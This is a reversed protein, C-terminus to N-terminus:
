AEPKKEEAKDGAVIKYPEVRIAGDGADVIIFGLFYQRDTGLWEGTVADQAMIPILVVRLGDMEKSACAMQVPPDVSVVGQFLYTGEHEGMYGFACVCLVSSGPRDRFKYIMGQGPQMISGQEPQDPAPAVGACGALLFILVLSLFVKM